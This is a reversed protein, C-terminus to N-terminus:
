GRIEFSAFRQAPADSAHVDRVRAARPGKWLWREFAQLAEADGCALAEVDGNPLNRVWGTLGLREAEDCAAYRFGVGQVRGSVVFRRCCNTNANM